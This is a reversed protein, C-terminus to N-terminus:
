TLRALVARFSTAAMEDRAIVLVTDDGAICGLVGDIMARDIGLALLQAAGPPTRLVLQNGAQQVSLLVEGSWRELLSPASTTPGDPEVRYVQRGDGTKVKIAGMEDLDRSLTAQTVAIGERELRDRLVSQSGITEADLIQQIVAQRASRTGPIYAESM